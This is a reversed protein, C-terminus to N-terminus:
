KVDGHIANGMYSASVYGSSATSKYYGNCYSYNPNHLTFWKNIVEKRGDLTNNKSVYFDLAKGSIHKSTKSSGPQKDNYTKCRLPSTITCPGYTNRIIQINTLLNIDLIAPYGTCYMANCHCRFERLTFNQTYLKVNYANNLLIDTNPGYLGDIDKTRTFYTKQLDLYAKKTGPGEIGDIKYENGKSDKTYFGLEKLYIQRTKVDLM